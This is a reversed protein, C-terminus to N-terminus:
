NGKLFILFAKAYYFSVFLLAVGSAYHVARRWSGLRTLRMVAGAFAGALLFPLGRGVGFALALVFGYVPRAEAAAVAILLLLPAASTGLSFVFGYGFAGLLGPRRLSALEGTKLRPGYFAVVAAVLSFLSMGLAWYKGFSESLVAGLRGALAGLITLNVVIGSFFALATWLGTGKAEGERAGAQGAVGIGVPLTCPCIASSVVGTLFAVGLAAPSGTSLTGGFGKLFEELTM